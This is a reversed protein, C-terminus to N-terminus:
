HRSISRLASKNEDEASLLTVITLLLEGDTNPLINFHFHRCEGSLPNVVALCCDAHLLVLGKKGTCRLENGNTSVLFNTARTAQERTESQM